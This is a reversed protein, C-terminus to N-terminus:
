AASQVISGDPRRLKWGERQSVHAIKGAKRLAQLRRDVVRWPPPPCVGRYSVCHPTALAECRAALATFSSVGITVLRLLEADLVSYDQKGM